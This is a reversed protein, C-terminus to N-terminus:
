RQQQCAFARSTGNAGRISSDGMSISAPFRCRPRSRPISAASCMTARDTPSDERDWRIGLNLTLKRNVKWDDQFFLAHYNLQGTSAANIGATASAPDGLLLSAVSYGSTASAVDPNPGQTFARNFNYSGVPYNIGFVNRRNM